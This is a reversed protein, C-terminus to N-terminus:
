DEGFRVKKRVDGSKEWTHIVVCDQKFRNTILVIGRISSSEGGEEGEVWDFLASSIDFGKARRRWSWWSASATITPAPMRPQARAM